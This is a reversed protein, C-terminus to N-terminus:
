HQTTKQKLYSTLLLLALLLTVAWLCLSLYLTFLSIFTYSRVDTM